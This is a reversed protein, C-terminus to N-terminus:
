KGELVDIIAVIMQKKRSVINELFHGQEINEVNYALSLTPRSKDNFLIYSGNNIIDTVFLCVIDYNNNSSIKNLENVYDEKLEDIEEYNTTFVQGIGINVDEANFQKFDQYIIDEITKGKLSSGAKFMELGYEEYNIDLLSSLRKVSDIDIKTTTPSKLLLTDSLIASLLLGAIEYPIDVGYQNFMGFIITCTSGVSMNRFNIPSSTSITGLRHHDIIEVIDAEELGDASQTKENHDVLIVKKRKKENVDTIRIMGLCEDDKGVVPYNTFTLQQTLDEFDTLFDMDRVFTPSSYANIKLAYNSLNILNSVQFSGNETRIINVKNKRAEELHKEKIESNGVLIILKVGSEVAYELISHRDGIVLVTDRSLKVDQIFTTSRFAATLIQGEIEDDFRLVEEGELVKLINDYSTYLKRRDGDILEKAIEKLTILGVLKNKNKSDILPIGSSQTVMMREYADKITDFRDVFLGRRYNIDRIQVKVDNLYKPTRVGFKELVFKTENNISGLVKPVFEFRKNVKNMLYAMAISASVSDTDPKKHGFVFVKEM